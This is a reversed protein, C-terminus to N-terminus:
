VNDVEEYSEICKDFEEEIEGFVMIYIVEFDFYFGVESGVEVKKIM